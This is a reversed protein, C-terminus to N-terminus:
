NVMFWGVEPIMSLDCVFFHFNEIESEVLSLISINWDYAFQKSFIYTAFVKGHFITPTFRAINEITATIEDM